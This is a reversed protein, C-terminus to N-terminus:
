FRYLIAIDGLVDYEIHGDRVRALTDNETYNNGLKLVDVIVITCHATGPEAALGYRPINEDTLRIFDAYKETLDCLSALVEEWSRRLTDAGEAKLKYRFNTPFAVYIFLEHNTEDYKFECNYDKFTTRAQDTITKYFETQVFPVAKVETAAFSGDGRILDHKCTGGWEIHMRDETMSISFTFTQGYFTGEPHTTFLYAGSMDYEIPADDLQGAFNTYYVRAWPKGYKFYVTVDAYYESDLSGDDDLQIYKGTCTRLDPFMQILALAKSDKTEVGKFRAEAEELTVYEEEKMGDYIVRGPDSSDAQVALSAFLLLCLLVAATIRKM